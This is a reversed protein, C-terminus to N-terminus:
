DALRSVIAEIAGKAIEPHPHTEDRIIALACSEGFLPFYRVEMMKGSVDGLAVQSIEDIPLLDSVRPSLEAVLGSVAALADPQLVEGAADVVLGEGDAVLAVTVGELSILSELVEHLSQGELRELPTATDSRIERLEEAEARAREAETQAVSLEAQLDVMRERRSKLEGRLRECEVSLRELERVASQREVSEETAPSAEPLSIRAEAAQLADRLREIETEAARLEDAEGPMPGPGPPAASELEAKLQRLEDELSVIKQGHEHREHAVHRRQEREAELAKKLRNITTQDQRTRPSVRFHIVGLFFGLLVLAAAVAIFLAATGFSGMPDFTEPAEIARELLVTVGLLAAAALLVLAIAHTRKV